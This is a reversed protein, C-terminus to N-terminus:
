LTTHLIKRVISKKFFLLLYINWGGNGMIKNQWQFFNFTLKSHEKKTVILKFM